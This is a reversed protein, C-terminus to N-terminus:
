PFSLESPESKQSKWVLTKYVINGLRRMQERRRFRIFDNSVPRPYQKIFSTLYGAFIALGGIMYPRDVFHRVCRLVEWLPHSGLYYDEAGYRYRLHIPGSISTGMKRHHRCSIETFTRTKWGKMRATTVAVLDVGGGPIYRYGGIQAFCESRFLQCIGSVHDLGVFGYNYTMSEDIFATGAVGLEPDDAFKRMLFEFYNRDFSVDADLNGVVDYEVDGISHYGTNFTGAKSAFNRVTHGEVRTFQIWPNNHLYSKIIEDTRDTSGDSVMVWKKPLHTQAVVSQITREIYKEENRAPTILVYSCPINGPPQVQSNM